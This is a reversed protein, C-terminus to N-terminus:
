GAATQRKLPLVATITTGIGPNSAVTLNGGIVRMRESMTALGLGDGPTSDVIFGCGDDVISLILVSNELKLDIHIQNAGSHAQANWLAEQAVRYMSVSVTEPLSPFDEAMSCSVRLNENSSRECLDRLALSMGLRELTPPRLQHSLNAVDKCITLTQQQIEEIERSMGKKGADTQAVCSLQISLAALRQALNEHLEQGIRIRETEQANILQIGMLRLKEEAQKRGTIDICSAIYGLFTRDPAYRPIGNGLVWRYSKNGQLLRYEFSFNKRAHFAELYERFVKERDSFHISELWGNGLEKEIPRSTFELWPKNFFTCLANNGSMWVMVPVTNILSRFREESERLALEMKRQQQIKVSLVMFPVCIVFLLLQTSLLSSAPSSTRLPGVGESVGIIFLSGVLSLSASSGLLGFRMAAWLLFPGPLYLVFPYHSIFDPDSLFSYYGTVALGATIMCIEVYVKTRHATLRRFEGALSLLGPTVVLSALSNGLFWTGWSALFSYGMAMRSAAGATASIMPVFIVAILFYNVFKRPSDFWERRVSDSRLLWASLMGKASDNVYCAALFWMPTGPMVSTFFRTPLTVLVFPWWNRPKTLLLLSLLVSDPFWFPSGFNQSFSMGFHYAVYYTVAFLGLIGTKRLALVSLPTEASNPKKDAASKVIPKPRYIQRVAPRDLITRFPVM